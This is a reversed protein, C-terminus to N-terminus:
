VSVSGSRRGNTCNTSLPVRRTERRRQRERSRQRAERRRAFFRLSVQRLNPDQMLFGQILEASRLFILQLIQYKIERVTDSIVCMAAVVIIARNADELIVWRM